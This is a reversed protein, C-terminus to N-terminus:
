KRTLDVVYDTDTVTIIDRYIDRLRDVETAIQKYEFKTIVKKKPLVKDFYDSLQEELTFFRLSEPRAIEEEFDITELVEFESPDFQLSGAEM